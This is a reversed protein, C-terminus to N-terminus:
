DVFFMVSVASPHFDCVQVTLAFNGYVAIHLMEFAMLLMLWSPATIWGGAQAQTTM